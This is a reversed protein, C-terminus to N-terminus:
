FPEPNKFIESLERDGKVFTEFYNNFPRKNEVLKLSGNKQLHGVTHFFDYSNNPVKIKNHNIAITELGFYECELLASSIFSVAMRCDQSTNIIEDRVISCNMPLSTLQIDNYPHQKIFVRDYKESLLTIISKIMWTETKKDTIAFESLCQLLLLANNNKYPQIIKKHSFFLDGMLIKSSIIV